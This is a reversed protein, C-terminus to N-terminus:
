SAPPVKPSVASGSFFILLETMASYKMPKRFANLRLEGRLGRITKELLGTVGHNSDWPPFLHYSLVKEGRTDLCSILSINNSEESARESVM